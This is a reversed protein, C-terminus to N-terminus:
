TSSVSCCHFSAHSVELALSHTSVFRALQQALRPNKAQFVDSAVMKPGYFVRLEFTFM